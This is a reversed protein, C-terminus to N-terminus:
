IATEDRAAIREQCGHAEELLRLLEAKSSAGIALSCYRCISEFIIGNEPASRHTFEFALSTM